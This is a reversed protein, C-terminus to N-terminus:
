RARPLGAMEVVELLLGRDREADLLLVVVRGIPREVLLFPGIAIGVRHSARSPEALVVEVELAMLLVCAGPRCVPVDVPHRERPQPPEDILRTTM